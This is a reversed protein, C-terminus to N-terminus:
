ASGLQVVMAYEDQTVPTISFRNGRKLVVMGALEPVTRMRDVTVMEPFKLEAKIDVMYWIPNQPTSKPDPHDSGPDWATHDPYGERLVTATGVVGIPKTSSHWFLLKDGAKIDNKLWNRVQFNRVGDWEAVDDAVLDDYSYTTPESKFLWYREAM